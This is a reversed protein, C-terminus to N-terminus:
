VIYTNYISPINRLSKYVGSPAPLALTNRVTKIEGLIIYFVIPLYLM